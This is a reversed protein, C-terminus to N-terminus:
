KRAVAYALIKFLLKAGAFDSVQSHPVPLLEVIDFAVLERRSLAARLLALAGWWSIGGPEPTGTGPVVSPDLGDVDLSLYIRPPLEEVV